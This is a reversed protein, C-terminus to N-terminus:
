APSHREALAARVSGDVADLLGQAEHASV